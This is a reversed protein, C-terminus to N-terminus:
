SHDCLARLRPRARQATLWGPTDWRYLTRRLALDLAQWYLNEDSTQFGKRQTQPFRADEVEIFDLQHYTLSLSRLETTWRLSWAVLQLVAHVTCVYELKRIHWSMYIFVIVLSTSAQNLVLVATRDSREGNWSRVFVFDTETYQALVHVNMRKRIRTKTM